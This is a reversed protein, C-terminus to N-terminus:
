TLSGALVKQAMGPEDKYADTVKAAYDAPLFPNGFTSSTVGYYVHLIDGREPDVVVREFESGKDRKTETAGKGFLKWVWNHGNPNQSVYTRYPCAVPQTPQARRRQQCARFLALAERDNEEPRRGSQRALESADPFWLIHAEWGRVEEASKPSCVGVTAGNAFTMQRSKRDFDKLALADEPHEKEWARIRGMWYPLITEDWMYFYPVVVQVKLGPHERLRYNLAAVIGHKKGSGFGGSALIHDAERGSPTVGEFVKHQHALMVGGFYDKVDPEFASM